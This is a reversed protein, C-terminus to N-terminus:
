SGNVSHGRRHLEQRMSHVSVAETLAVEPSIIQATVLKLLAQDLTTMNQISSESVIKTIDESLEGVAEKLLAQTIRDSQLLIEVAAIKGGQISYILRQALIGRISHALMRFVNPREEPYYLNAFRRIAEESTSAHITSVVLHGTMSAQLAIDATEQDRIEGILIVDPNQRLVSRLATSFSDTDGGVERQSIVAKNDKHLIEVPNEITIIRKQETRNIQDIMAALTTTKGQGTPGAVLILGDRSSALTNLIKPLGLQEVTLVKNNIVRLVAELNGQATYANVRYRTESEQDSFAFDIEKHEAIFDKQNKDMLSLILNKVTESSLVDGGAKLVGDVRFFVRANAKIHIDSASIKSGANLLTQLLAKYNM